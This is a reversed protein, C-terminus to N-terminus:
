GNHPDGKADDRMADQDGEGEVRTTPTMDDEKCDADRTTTESGAMCILAGDRKVCVLRGSLTVAEVNELMEPAMVTLSSERLSMLGDNELVWVGCDWTIGRDIDSFDVMDDRAIHGDAFNLPVPDIEEVSGSGYYVRLGRSTDRVYNGDEDFLSRIMAPRLSGEARELLPLGDVEILDVEKLQEPRVLAIPEQRLCMAGDDTTTFVDRELLVGDSDISSIDIFNDELVAGVSLSMMTTDVMRMRSGETITIRM